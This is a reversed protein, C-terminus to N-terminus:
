HQGPLPKINQNLHFLNNPDYKAKLNRLRGLNAGYSARVKEVSDDDDIHNIYASGELHPELRDWVNRVWGIHRLVVRDGDPDRCSRGRAAELHETSALRHGVHAPRQEALVVDHICQRRDGRRPMHADVRRARSLGQACEAADFAAHFNAADDVPHRDVVIERM